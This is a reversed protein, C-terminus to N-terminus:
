QQHIFGQLTMPNGQGPHKLTYIGGVLQFLIFRLDKLRFSVSFFFVQFLLFRFDRM